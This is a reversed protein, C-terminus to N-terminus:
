KGARELRPPHLRQGGGAGRHGRRAGGQAEVRRVPLRDHRPHSHRPLLRGSAIGARGRRGAARLHREERARSLLAQGDVDGLRPLLGPRGALLPLRADPADCRRLRRAGPPPRRAFRRLLGAEHLPAAPLPRADSRPRRPLERAADRRKAGDQGQGGDPAARGRAKAELAATCGAAGGGIVLM